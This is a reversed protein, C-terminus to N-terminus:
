KRKWKINEKSMIRHKRRSKKSRGSLRQSAKQRYEETYTDMKIETNKRVHIYRTEPDMPDRYDETHTRDTKRQKVPHITVSQARKDQM